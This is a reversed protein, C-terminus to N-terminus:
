DAQSAQPKRHLQKYQTPSVGFLDKFASSFAGQNEFGVASAVDSMTAEGAAIIEAAKSLRINRLYVSPSQGTLDKIKRFLHVRSMGIENAIAETTLSSNGLERNIIRAVKELMQADPNTVVPTEIQESGMPQLNHASRVRDQSSLLNNITAILVDMNYPKTIYADAGIEIGEVKEDDRIKATLMIIRVQNYRVDKRVQSVFELGDMEPMMVDSIIIDPMHKKLEALGELGNSAAYVKYYQALDSVLYERVETEDELLLITKQKHSRRRTKEKPAQEQTTLIAQAIRKPAMEDDVIEGVEEATLMQSSKLHSSGMPFLLIFRSGQGAPNDEASIEGHHLEMLERALYLGIGTGINSTKGGKDQYFREFVMAKADAPIGVGTDTVMVRISGDVFKETAEGKEITVVISGGEPTFKLANSLLNSLIKEYQQKDIWLKQGAPLRNDISLSVKRLAAVDDFSQCLDTTVEGFLVEQCRLEMQSNDLKRVDLLQNMLSLIRNSNRMMLQYSRQREGDDDGKLLKLLPGVILTMPTRIEHAINTFFRLKAESVAQQQRQRMERRMEQKRNYIAYVILASAAVFLVAWILWAWWRFFWPHQITFEFVKLDSDVGNLVAQYAFKHTGSSLHSFSVKNIGMPLVTWADNDLHYSYIAQRTKTIPLLGMSFVLTNDDHKFENLGIASAGGAVIDIIRVECQSSRTTVESPNFWTIGGAGGFWLNGEPSVSTADKSFENSQLGDFVTYNTAIHNKLHFCTLGVNSGLWVNGLTDPLVSHYNGALLGNATNYREYKQDNLNFLVIGNGTCLCLTDNNLLRANFVIDSQMCQQPNTEPDDADVITLGNYSGVYIRNRHADYCVSNNWRCSDSHVAPSMTRTVEDFLLIGTGMSAAWIRGYKDEAFDYIDADAKRIGSVELQGFTGKKRDVWGFGQNYSGYWLRRKSDEFVSLLAFPATANDGHCDFHRVLTGDCNIAYLGGNDTTIWLIQDRDLHMSTICKDGIVDFERSKHGILHFPMPKSPAVMVGRQYLALWMNHESDECAAHVKQTGPDLIESRYEFPTLQQTAYDYIMLGLNDTAVYMRGDHLNGMERVMCKSEGVLEIKQTQYNFRHLGVTNLGIYVNGDSGCHISNAPVDAGHDRICEVEGDPSMRYLEQLRRIVWVYGLSDEVIDETYDIQNTMATRYLVPIDHDDFRVGCSTNGSVWLEGNRLEVFGTVDGKTSSGDEFRAVQSFSDSGPLYVQLGSRTGVLLHGAKDCYIRRVYNSQLSNPDDLVHRYTTFNYGDYKCLGDETAVWVMQNADITIDNVLSNPMDYDTGFLWSSQAMVTTHLCVFVLLLLSGIRKM